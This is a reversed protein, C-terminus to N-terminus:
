PKLSYIATNEKMKLKNNEIIQINNYPTIKNFPIKKM